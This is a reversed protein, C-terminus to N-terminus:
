VGRLFSVVEDRQPISPQAGHRTVAIASAANAYRAGDELSQGEGIMVALAGTFTDGAAVTDVPTVKHAPLHFENTKTLGYVGRSGLTIVVQEVGKDLLVQAASKASSLDKVEIGTLLQAESENPTIVSIHKYIDEPLSNAPAPNLVVKVGLGHAKKIAYLVTDIPIELQVVLVDCQALVPSLADVDEKTVAGNAGPVVIIRNSGQEDLIISAIGSAHKDDVVVYDTNIQESQLSQIQDQGFLDRGVRGAMITKAGQRAAAVAQNAGKGGFYRNFATGVITEGDVPVRPTQVVLDMNMSGIVLVRVREV